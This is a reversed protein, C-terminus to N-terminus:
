TLTPNALTFPTDASFAGPPVVRETPVGAVDATYPPVAQGTDSLLRNGYADHTTGVTPTLPPFCM